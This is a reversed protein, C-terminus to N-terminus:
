FDFEDFEQKDEFRETNKKGPKDIPVLRFLKALNQYVKVTDLFAKGTEVRSKAFLECLLIFSQKTASTLLNNLALHEAHEKWFEVAVKDTLCRPPELTTLPKADVREISPLPGRNGM